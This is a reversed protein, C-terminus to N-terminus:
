DFEDATFGGMFEEESMDEAEERIDEGISPMLVDAGMQIFGGPTMSLGLEAAQQAAADSDEMKSIESAEATDSYIGLASLGGTIGTVIAGVKGGGTPPKPLKPKDGDEEFISLFKDVLSKNEEPTLKERPAEPSVETFEGEIVEDLVPRQKFYDQFGETHQSIRAPPEGGEIAVGGYDIGTPKDGLEERLEKAAEEFTERYNDALKEVEQSEFDTVEHPFADSDYTSLEGTTGKGYSKTSRGQSKALILDDMIGRASGTHYNRMLQSGFKGKDGAVNDPYLSDYYTRTEKDYLIEPVKVKGLVRNIDKTQVPSGDAFTFIRVPKGADGLKKINATNDRIQSQIQADAISNLPTNVKRGKAGEKDGELFLTSAQGKHVRYEDLQMGLVANPRLGTSLGTFIARVVPIDDPNQAAYRMLGKFLLKRKTKDKSVQISSQAKAPKKVGTYEVIETPTNQTPLWDPSKGDYGEKGLQYAFYQVNQMFNTLTGPKITGKDLKGKAEKAIQRIPINGDADPQFLEALPKDKYKTLLPGLSRQGGRKGTKPKVDGREPDNNYSELVDQVTATKPDLTAM